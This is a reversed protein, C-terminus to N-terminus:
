LGRTPSTPIHRRTPRIPGVLRHHVLVAYGPGSRPGRPYLLFVARIATRLRVVAGVGLPSSCTLFRLARLLSAFWVPAVM